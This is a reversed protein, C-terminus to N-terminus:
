KIVTLPKDSEIQLRVATSSSKPVDTQVTISSLGKFSYLFPSGPAVQVYKVREQKADFIAVRVPAPRAGPAVVPVISITQPSDTSAFRIRTSMPVMTRAAGPLTVEAGVPMEDVYFRDVAFATTAFFGLVGVQLFINKFKM